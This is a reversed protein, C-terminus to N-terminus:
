FNPIYLEGLKEQTQLHQLEHLKRSLEVGTLGEWEMEDVEKQLQRIRPSVETLRDDDEPRM